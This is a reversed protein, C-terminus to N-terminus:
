GGFCRAGASIAQLALAQGGAPADPQISTFNFFVLYTSSNYLFASL